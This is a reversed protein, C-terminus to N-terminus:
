VDVCNKYLQLTFANNDEDVHSQSNIILIAGQLIEMYDTSLIRRPSLSFNDAAPTGLIKLMHCWFYRHWVSAVGMLGPPPMYCQACHCVRM